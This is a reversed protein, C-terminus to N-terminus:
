NIKFNSENVPQNKKINKLTIVTNDGSKEHLEVSTVVMQKVDFHLRILSFMQKMQKKLPILDAGWNGKDEIFYKVAFEKNDALCKGTVSNMMIRAIEEFMKNTNIDIVNRQKGTDILVKSGNIIFVYKYPSTYEWRLKGSKKYRMVGTSTMKDNLMKLQKVQVFNCDLTTMASAAANIKQSMERRQSDNDPTLKADVSIFCLMLLLSIFFRNKM